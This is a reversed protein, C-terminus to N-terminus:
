RLVITGLMVPPQTGRKEWKQLVVESFRFVDVVLGDDAAKPCIRFSQSHRKILTEDEDDSDCCSTFPSSLGQM